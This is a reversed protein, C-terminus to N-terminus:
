HFISIKNFTFSPIPSPCFNKPSFLYINDNIFPFIIIFTQKNLIDYKNKVVKIIIIIM